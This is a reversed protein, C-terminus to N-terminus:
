GRDAFPAPPPLIILDMLQFEGEPESSRHSLFAAPRFLSTHEEALCLSPQVETRPPTQGENEEAVSENEQQQQFFTALKQLAEYRTLAQSDEYGGDSAAPQGKGNAYCMEAMSVTRSQLRVDSPSSISEEDCTWEESDTFSNSHARCQNSSRSGDSFTDGDVAPRGAAQSARKGLELMEKIDLEVNMVPIYGYMHDDDRALWKGKPCDTTRIISVIDGTQVPLDGKRGKSTVTVKAKYMPEEQGTIKFKRRMENEKKERERREKKERKKQERDENTERNEKRGNGNGHSFTGPPEGSVFWPNHFWTSKRSDEGMAETDAYPNKPIVKRRWTNQGRRLKSTIEVDEYVNDANESHRESGLGVLPKADKHQLETVCASNQAPPDQDPPDLAPASGKTWLGLVELVASKSERPELDTADLGQDAAGFAQSEIANFAVNFTGALEPCVLDQPKPPVPYEPAQGEFDISELVGVGIEHQDKGFLAWCPGLDVLHPRPPKEPPPDLSDLEPLPIKAPGTEAPQGLQLCNTKCDAGDKHIHPVKWHSAINLKAALASVSITQSVSKPKQPPAEAKQGECGMLSLKPSAKLSFWPPSSTEPSGGNVDQASEASSLTSHRVSADEFTSCVSPASTSRSYICGRGKPSPSGSTMEASNSPSKSQSSADLSIGSTKPSTSKVDNEPSRMKGPQGSPLCSSLPLSLIVKQEKGPLPLGLSLRKDKSTQRTSQEKEATKGSFLSPTCPPLPLPYSVPRKGHKKARPLVSSKSETEVAITSLHSPCAGPPLPIQRPKEPVMPKRRYQNLTIEEQFKARIAKFDTFNEDTAM